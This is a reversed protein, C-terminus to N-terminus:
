GDRGTEPVVLVPCPAKRLVYQSVTGLLMSASGRGALVILQANARQATEVLKRGALGLVTHLRVKGAQDGLADVVADRLAAEAVIREDGATRLTAVPRVAPAAVAREGSCAMVAILEAERYRAEQAAARIATRSSGSEEVGVVVTKQQSTNAM